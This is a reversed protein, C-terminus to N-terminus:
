RWREGRWLLYLFYPAGLLALVSGVPLELPAAVVRSATDAAVVLGAGLLASAPLLFRYDPGILLRALHPVVLGVFGILGAASVAGAALLAAVGVLFFRVWAVAVGLGLAVDDQLLLVTLLRASALALAAGAAVLPVMRTLEPWSRGSLSGLTWGLIAPVRDAYLIMVLGMLAGLLANLAVGALILRLPSLGGVGWALGVVLLATACAGLFAGWPILGMWQPAIIMVAVAVLGAGASVGMIGPDALPNRLVGQLLAGALALGTGVLTGVLVRPLRLDWLIARDEPTGGGALMAVVDGLPISVAGVAVGLLAAGALFAASATLVGIRRWRWPHVPLGGPSAVRKEVLM